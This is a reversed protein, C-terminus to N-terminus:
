KKAKKAKVEVKIKKGNEDCKEFRDELSKIDHVRKNFKVIVGSAKKFFKDMM